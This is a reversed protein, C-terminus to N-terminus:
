EARSPRSLIGSSATFYSRFTTAPAQTSLRTCRDSRSTALRMRMTRLLGPEPGVGLPFLSAVIVFFLLANAVDGRRRMALLLDRGIVARPRHGEFAGTSGLVHASAVSLDLALEATVDRNALGRVGDTGFLRGM